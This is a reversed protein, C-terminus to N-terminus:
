SARDVVINASCCYIASNLNNAVKSEIPTKICNEDDGSHVSVDSSQDSSYEENDYEPM